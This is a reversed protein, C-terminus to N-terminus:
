DHGGELAFVEGSNPDYVTGDGQRAVPALRGNDRAIRYRLLGPSTPAQGPARKAAVTVFGAAALAKLYRRLNSEADKESGDALATLLEPLTASKRARLVWWCRQRLGRTATRPRAAQGSAILRGSALWARGAETLAYRGRGAIAVLGRRKLKQVANVIAKEDAQVAAAIAALREDGAGICALTLQAIRM